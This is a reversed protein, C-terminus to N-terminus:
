AQPNESADPPDDAPDDSGLPPNPARGRTIRTVWVICLLGIPVATIVELGRNVLDGALGTPDVGSHVTASPLLSLTLGIAWERMGLGNGALPISQVIGSSTALIIAEAMGIPHGIIAFVVAYRGAWILADLYRIILVLPMLVMDSGGRLRGVFSLGALMLIPSLCAAVWARWDAEGWLAVAIGLLVVLGITSCTIGLIVVKLSDAIRMAHYKRHYAIRGILGPRMPLYNLLWAGGVLGAMDPLPVRAYRSSLMTFSIAILALNAMPMVLALAVLWAPANRANTWASDLAERHSVVVWGAALVLAVALSFQVVIRLRSRPAQPLPADDTM